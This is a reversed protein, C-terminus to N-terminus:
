VVVYSVNETIETVEIKDSPDRYQYDERLFKDFKREAEKPDSALTWLCIIGCWGLYAKM